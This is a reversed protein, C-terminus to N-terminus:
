VNKIQKIKPEAEILLEILHVARQGSSAREAGYKMQLLCGPNTTVIVQANTAQADGMKRDLIKMSEDYQVINYIGASGCCFDPDNM